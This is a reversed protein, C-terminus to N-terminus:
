VNCIRAFTSTCIIRLSISYANIWSHCGAIVFRAIVFVGNCRVVNSLGASNCYFIPFCVGNYRISKSPGLACTVGSYRM